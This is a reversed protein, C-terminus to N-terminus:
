HLHRGVADGQRSLVERGDAEFRQLAQRPTFARIQRMVYRGLDVRPPLQLPWSDAIRRVTRDIGRLIADPGGHTRVTAVPEGQGDHVAAALRWPPESAPDLGDGGGSVRVGIMASAVLAPMLGDGLWTGPVGPLAPPWAAVDDPMVGPGPAFVDAKGACCLSAIQGVVGEALALQDPNAAHAAVVIIPRPM